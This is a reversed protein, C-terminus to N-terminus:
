NSATAKGRRWLIKHLLTPQPIITKASQHGNFGSVFNLRNFASIRRSNLNTNLNSFEMSRSTSAQQHSVSIRIANAGSLRVPKDRNCNVVEVWEAAQDSEWQCLEVEIYPGGGHWLHFVQLYPV